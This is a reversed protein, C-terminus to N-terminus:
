NAWKPRFTVPFNGISQKKVLFNSYYAPNIAFYSGNKNLDPQWIIKINWERDTNNVIPLNQTVEARAPIRMQLIAKLPKPLITFVIKYRRIDSKM